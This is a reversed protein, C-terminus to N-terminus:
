RWFPVRRQGSGELVRQKLAVAREEDLQMTGGLVVLVEVHHHLRHHAPLEETVKLHIRDPTLKRRGRAIPGSMAPGCMGGPRDPGVECVYVDAAGEGGRESGESM